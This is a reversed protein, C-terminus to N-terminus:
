VTVGQEHIASAILALTGLICALKLVILGTAGATQWALAIAIESLWEHNVWPRDSTFSYRDAIDLSRSQVIDLGFRLHGWLDVDARTRAAVTVVAVIAIALAVARLLRSLVPIPEAAAERGIRACYAHGHATGAFM